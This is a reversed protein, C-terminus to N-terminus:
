VQEGPQHGGNKQEDAQMIELAVLTLALYSADGYASVLTRIHEACELVQERDATELNDIDQRVLMLDWHASM